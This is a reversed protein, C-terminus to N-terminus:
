QKLGLFLASAWPQMLSLARMGILDALTVSKTEM